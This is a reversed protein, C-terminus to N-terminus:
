IELCQEISKILLPGFHPTLERKLRSINEELSDVKRYSTPHCYQALVKGNDIEKDLIHADIFIEKEKKLLAQKIPEAGAYQPLKGRHLNVGAIKAQNLQEEPILRRWSISAILDFDWTSIKEGLSLAEKNTDVFHLPTNHETTIMEFECFDKREKRDADESKPNRRHTVVAVVEFRPDKFLHELGNFGHHRALFALVRYKVQSM